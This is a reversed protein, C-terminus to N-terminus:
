QPRRLDVFLHAKLKASAVYVGGITNPGIGGMVTTMERKSVRKDKPLDKIEIKSM